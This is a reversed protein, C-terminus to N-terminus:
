VEQLSAILNDIQQQIMEQEFPHPSKTKFLAEILKTKNNVIVFYMNSSGGDDGSMIFMSGGSALLSLGVLAASSGSIGISEYGTQIILLSRKSKSKLEFESLDLIQDKLNNSEISDIKNILKIKTEFNNIGQLNRKMQLHEESIIMEIYENIYDATFSTDIGSGPVKIAIIPNFVEIGKLRFSDSRNGTTACGYIMFVAILVM